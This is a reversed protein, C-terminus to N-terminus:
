YEIFLLGRAQRCISYKLSNSYLGCIGHTQTYHAQSHPSIESKAADIRTCQVYMILM